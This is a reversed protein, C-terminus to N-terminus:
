VGKTYGSSSASYARAPEPAAWIFRDALAFRMLMLLILSAINSALYNIGLASTMTYVLPARMLLALNNMAFFLAGRSLLGRGGAKGFVWFESLSFNWLTSGQTAILLSYLYFLGLIETAFALVLSNVLVGSAGVIGFRALRVTSPSFRLGLLLRLYRLGEQMSAKSEGAFREGFHFPVSALRLSPTRGVIELLIKFGCPRLADLDIAKQRVMFFGSMPDSLDKLRRPFLARAALTSSRSVTSRILNFSEADGDQCYRSAVVLDAEKHRAEALLQPIMEPPHQLDGDMVCVWPARAVRIGETVAGGLGGVRRDPPRHLLHIPLAVANGVTQIVAPTDDTSDDVFIVDMPLDVAVAMLRRVLEAINEAENRTPIVVSVVSVQRQADTAARNGITATVISSPGPAEEDPWSETVPLRHPTGRVASIEEVGQM